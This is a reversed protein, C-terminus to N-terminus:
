CYYTKAHGSSAKCHSAHEVLVRKGATGTERQEVWASTGVGLGAPMATGM